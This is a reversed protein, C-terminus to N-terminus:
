GNTNQQCYRPSWFHGSQLDLCMFRICITRTREKYTAIFVDCKHHSSISKLRNYLISILLLLLLLLLL